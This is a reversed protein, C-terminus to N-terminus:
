AFNGSMERGCNWRGGSPAIAHHCAHLRRTAFTPVDLWSRVILRLAATRPKIFLCVGTYKTLSILQTSIKIPCATECNTSASRYLDSPRPNSERHHWQFKKKYLEEPRVIARREVWGRVSILVLFIKVNHHLQNLCQAVLWFSAPKIGSPTVAIKWQCLGELRVIATPNVLGRISILVLFIEHFYIHGTRLASLRVVKM